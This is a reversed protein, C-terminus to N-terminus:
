SHFGIRRKPPVPVDAPPELLRMVKRLVDVIALEHVDLRQTLQKELKKLEQALERNNSLLTRMKVFARVVFVSMRAATLSNLVNAAMLAGQETFAFPRFRPDRHKKSGTVFQSRNGKLEQRSLRFM